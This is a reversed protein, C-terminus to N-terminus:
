SKLTQLDPSLSPARRFKGLSYGPISLLPSSNSAATVFSTNSFVDTLLESHNLNASASGHAGVDWVLVGCLRQQPHWSTGVQRHLVAKTSSYKISRSTTNIQLTKQRRFAPAHSIRNFWSLSVQLPQTLSWLLNRIWIYSLFQKFTTYFDLPDCLPKLFNGWSPKIELM